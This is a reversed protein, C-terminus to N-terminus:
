ANAPDNGNDEAERESRHRNNVTTAIGRYLFYIGILVIGIDAWLKGAGEVLTIIGYSLIFAAFVFYLIGIHRM